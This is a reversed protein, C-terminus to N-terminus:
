QGKEFSVHMQGLLQDWTALDFKSFLFAQDLAVDTLHSTRRQNIANRFQFPPKRLLMAVESDRVQRSKWHSNKTFSAWNGLCFAPHNRNVFSLRTTKLPSCRM